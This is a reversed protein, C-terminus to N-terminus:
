FFVCKLILFSSLPLTQSELELFVPEYSDLTRVEPLAHTEHRSEAWGRLYIEKFAVTWLAIDAGRLPPTCHADRSLGLRLGSAAGGAADPVRTRCGALRPPRKEGRLLM